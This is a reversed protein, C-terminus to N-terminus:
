PMLKSRILRITREMEREPFRKTDIGEDTLYPSLASMIDPTAGGYQGMFSQLRSSLSFTLKERPALSLYDDIRSLMAKRDDPLRGNVSLLNSASDSMITTEGDTEAVITRIEAAVQEETSEIFDGRQAAESLGTRPFIELTRLRVFDPRALSLVRATAHAHEDSWAAGGLGPMVYVSPSLGAERTKRCAELHDEAAEGKQMFALVRDSGSEIGFHVRHLGAAAFAALEGAKKRAASRTRGYITFRDLEPFAERISLMAETLFSAPLLLSNADGLFCSGAGSFRWSLLHLVSDELDPKDKFWSSFWRMREDEDDAADARPEEATSSGAGAAFLLARAKRYAEDFSGATTVGEAALFRDLAAARRVDERVEEIARRSFRAGMKYVPCFMCRNWACNRTLRFTLSNNETPPRISCIEFPQLSRIDM